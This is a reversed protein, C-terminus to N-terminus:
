AVREAALNSGASGQDDKCGGEGPLYTKEGRPEEQPKAWAATTASAAISGALAIAIVRTLGSTSV